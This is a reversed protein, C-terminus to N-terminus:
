NENSNRNDNKLIGIITMVEAEDLQTTHGGQFWIIDGKSFILIPQTLVSRDANAGYYLGAIDNDIECTTKKFHNMLEDDKMDLDIEFTIFLDKHIWEVKLVSYAMKPSHETKLIYAINIDKGKNGRTKSPETQPFLSLLKAAKQRNLKGFTIWTKRPQTFSERMVTCELGTKKEFENSLEARRIKEEMERRMNEIDKM